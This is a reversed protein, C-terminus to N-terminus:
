VFRTFNTDGYDYNRTFLNVWDVTTITIFYAKDKNRIKYKDSMNLQNLASKYDTSKCDQKKKARIAFGRWRPNCIQALSITNM